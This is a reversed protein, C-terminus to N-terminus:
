LACRRILVPVCIPFDDMTSKHDETLRNAMTLGSTGGGIIVYDYSKKLQSANDVLNAREVISALPSCNACSVLALLLLIRVLFASMDPKM